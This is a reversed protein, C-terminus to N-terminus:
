GYVEDWAGFLTHVDNSPTKEGTLSAWPVFQVGDFRILGASTGIWIYGDTTQTITWAYGAFYGDQARWATYGYQSIRRGPDLAAMRGQSFLRYTVSVCIPHEEQIWCSSAM